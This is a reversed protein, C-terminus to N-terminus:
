WTEPQYANVRLQDAIWQVRGMLTLHLPARARDLVGTAAAINQRADWLQRRTEALEAEARVVRAELTDHDLMPEAAQRMDLASKLGSYSL